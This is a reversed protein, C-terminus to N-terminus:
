LCFASPSKCKSTLPLGQGLTALDLFETEAPCGYPRTLRALSVLRAATCVAAEQIAQLSQVLWELNAIVCSLGCCLNQGRAAIVEDSAEKGRTLSVGHQMKPGTLCIGAM